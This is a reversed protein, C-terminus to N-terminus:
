FQFYVFDPSASNVYVIMVVTALAYYLSHVVSDSKVYRDLLHKAFMPISFVITLTFVLM